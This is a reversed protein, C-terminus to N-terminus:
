EIPEVRLSEIEESLERLREEDFNGTALKRFRGTRDFIALNPQGEKLGFTGKLANDFDLWVPVHPSAKAFQKQLVARVPEPVPGTCAVPIVHVDPGPSEATGGRVPRVPARFGEEAPLNEAAPHFLVHVREGLQRCEKAAHRDSFVLIVVAGAHDAIQHSQQFQDVLRLDAGLDPRFGSQAWVSLPALMLFFVIWQANSVM